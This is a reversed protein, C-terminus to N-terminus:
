KGVSADSRPADRRGVPSWQEPIAVPRSWDIEDAPQPASSARRGVTARRRLAPIEVFRNTLISLLVASGVLVLVRLALGAAGEGSMWDLQLAVLLLLPVHWLYLAYSLQGLRRLVPLELLRVARRRVPHRGPLTLYVLLGACALGFLPGAHAPAVYAAFGITSVLMMAVGTRRVRRIVQDSYLWTRAAVVIVAVVMGMAFLDANAVLGNALPPYAGSQGERLAFPADADRGTLALVGVRSAVGLALLLLAAVLTAAVPGRRRTLARAVYVLLPLMLYCGVLAVLSWSVAVALGLGRNDDGLQLSGTTAGIAVASIVLVVVYGPGLRLLRNRFFDRNRPLEHGRVLAAVFPRFLLFGSLVFFLAIGCFGATVLVRDLANPDHDPASFLLAANGLLVGLVALGRLGDLGSIRNGSSPGPGLPVPDLIHRPM